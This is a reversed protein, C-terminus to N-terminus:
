PRGKNALGNFPVVATQHQGYGLAFHIYVGVERLILGIKLRKFALNFFIGGTLLGAPDKILHVYICCIYCRQKIFIKQIILIKVKNLEM